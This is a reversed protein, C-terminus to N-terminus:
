PHAESWTGGARAGVCQGGRGSRPVAQREGVHNELGSTAGSHVSPSSPQSPCAGGCSQHSAQGVPAGGAGRPGRTVTQTDRAGARTMPRRSAATRRAGGRPHHQRVGVGEAGRDTCAVAYQVQVDPLREPAEHGAAAKVKVVVVDGDFPVECRQAEPGHGGRRMRQWQREPCSRPTPWMVKGACRTYTCRSGGTEM